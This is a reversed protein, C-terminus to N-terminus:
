GPLQAAADRYFKCVIRPNVHLYASILKECIFPHFTYRVPSDERYPVRELLEVKLAEDSEMVHVAKALFACYDNMVESRAIFHNQLIIFRPTVRSSYDLGLQRMLYDFVIDFKVRVSDYLITQRGYIHHFGLVDFDAINCVEILRELTFSKNGARLIKQEAKHSWVGVYKSSYPCLDLIVQNEFYNTLTRNHHPIVAPHVFCNKRSEEDFWIQHITLV